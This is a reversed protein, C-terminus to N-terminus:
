SKVASQKLINGKMITSKPFHNSFIENCVVYVFTRNRIKISNCVIFNRGATVHLPNLLCHFELSWSGVCVVRACRVDLEM